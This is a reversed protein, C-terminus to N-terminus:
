RVAKRIEKVLVAAADEAIAAAWERAEVGPHQVSTAHVTNGPARGGPRSPIVGPQTKHVYNGDGFALSGGSRATITHPKTGANTFVAREDDTSVESEGRRREVSIDFGGTYHTSQSKFGRRVRETARDLAGDIKRQLKVRTPFPNRGTVRVGLTTTM